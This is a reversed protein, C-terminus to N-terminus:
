VAGKVAPLMPVGSVKPAVTSWAVTVPARGMRVTAWPTLAAREYTCSLESLMVMPSPRWAVSWTRSESPTSRVLPPSVTRKWTPAAAPVPVPVM